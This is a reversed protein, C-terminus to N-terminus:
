NKKKGAPVAQSKKKLEVPGKKASRCCGCCLVTCMWSYTTAVIFYMLFFVLLGLDFLHSPLKGAHEPYKAEFKAIIPSVIKGGPVAVVKDAMNWVMNLHPLVVREFASTVEAYWTHPPKIGNKLTHTNVVAMVEDWKGTIQKQVNAPVHEWVLGFTFCAAFCTLAKALTVSEVVFTWTGSTTM